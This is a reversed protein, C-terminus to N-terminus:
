CPDPTKRIIAEERCLCMFRPQNHEACWGCGWHCPQGATTCNVRELDDSDPPSGTLQEFEEATMPKGSPTQLATELLPLRARLQEREHPTLTYSTEPKPNINFSIEGAELCEIEMKGEVLSIRFKGRTVEFVNDAM